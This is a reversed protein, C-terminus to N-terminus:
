KSDRKDSAPGTDGSTAEPTRSIVTGPSQPPRTKMMIWFAVPLVLSIFIWLYRRM